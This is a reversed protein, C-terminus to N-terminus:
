TMPLPQRTRGQGPSNFPLLQGVGLPPMQGGQQQAPFSNQGGPPLLPTGQFLPQPAGGVGFGPNGPHYAVPQIQQGVRPDPQGVPTAPVQPAGLPQNLQAWHSQMEGPVKLMAAYAAQETVCQASQMGSKQCIKNVSGAMAQLYQMHTAYLQAQDQPGIAALKEREEDVFLALQKQRIDNTCEKDSGCVKKAKTLRAKATTRAKSGDKSDDKLDYSREAIQAMLDAASANFENMADTAAKRADRDLSKYKTDDFFKNRKKILDEVKAFLKTLDSESDSASELDESKLSALEEAFAESGKDLYTNKAYADLDRLMQIADLAVQGNCSARKKYWAIEAAKLDRQLKAPDRYVQPAPVTSSDLVLAGEKDEFLLGIQTGDETPSFSFTGEVLSCGEAHKHDCNIASYQALCQSPWGASKKSERIAV